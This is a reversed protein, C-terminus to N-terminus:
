HRRRLGEAQGQDLALPSGHNVHVVPNLPPPTRNSRTRHLSWRKRRSGGHREAAANPHNRKKKENEPHKRRTCKRLKTHTLSAPFPHTVEWSKSISGLGRPRYCQDTREKWALLVNCCFGQWIAPESSAAHSPYQVNPRGLWKREFRERLVWSYVYQARQLLPRIVDCGLFVAGRLLTLAVGHHKPIRGVRGALDLALQQTM